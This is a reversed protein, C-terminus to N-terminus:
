LCICINWFNVLYILPTPSPLGGLLCGTVVGGGEVYLPVVTYEDPVNYSFSCHIIRDSRVSLSRGNNQATLSQFQNCVALLEM